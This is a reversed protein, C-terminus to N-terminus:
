GRARQKAADFRARGPGKRAAADLVPVRRAADMVELGGKELAAWLPRIVNEADFQAQAASIAVQVVASWRFDRKDVPWDALDDLDLDWDEETLPAGAADAARFADRWIEENRESPERLLLVVRDSRGTITREVVAEARAVSDAIADHLREVPM